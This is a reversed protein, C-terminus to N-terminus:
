GGQLWRDFATILEGSGEMVLGGMITRVYFQAVEVLHAVM